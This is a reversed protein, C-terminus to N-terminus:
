LAYVGNCASPDTWRDTWSGNDCQYWDDNSRSQVCANDSMERSLTDSYCGKGGGSSHGGNGIPYTGSCPAPDTWRDAWAGEDCQYWDGNSSQVCANSAMKRGLTDSYCGVGGGGGGGNLSSSGGGTGAPAVFASITMGMIGPASGLVGPYAPTNLVVHSTSAFEAESGNDGGWDGSVTEISGDSNVEVVIAVHDASGGGHYDFVVADGVAPRSHLTGHDQGYVYFSGAAADLGATDFGGKAWVWRAFDACWYEPEGGNGTCSSDFAKGGESNTSCAKKGVNARAISGISATSVANTSSGVAEDSAAGSCGAGFAVFAVFSVCSVFSSRSSSPRMPKEPTFPPNSGGKLVRRAAPM